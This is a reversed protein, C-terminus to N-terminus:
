VCAANNLGRGVLGRLWRNLGDDMNKRRYIVSRAGHNLQNRLYPNGCKSIGLM